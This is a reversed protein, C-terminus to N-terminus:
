PVAPSISTWTWLTITRFEAPLRGNTGELGWLRTHMGGQNASWEDVVNTLGIVIESGSIPIQVKAAGGQCVVELLTALHGLDDAPDKRLITRVM